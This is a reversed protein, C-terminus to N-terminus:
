ERPERVGRNRDEAKQDVDQGDAHIEAAIYKMLAM